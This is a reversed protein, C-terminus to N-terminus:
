QTMSYMQLFIPLLWGNVLYEVIGLGIELVGMLVNGVVAAATTFVGCIIGTASISTGAFKNVAAVAAYFIAILAIIGIIIWTIPCALLATNLGQVAVMEAFTAGAAYAQSTALISAKLAAAGKLTNSILELGNTILLYGGYIALAAIVGWMIPEIISWNDSIARGIFGVALGIGGFIGQIQSADGQLGATFDNMHRTVVNVVSGVVGSLGMNVTRGLSALASTADDYKVNNLDELNQTTLEVSGNLNTLAM